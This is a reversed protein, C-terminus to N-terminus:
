AEDYKGAALLGRARLQHVQAPVGAFAGPAVFNTYTHLCRLMSQEYAEAAKGYDKRPAAAIGLRRVSAGSYFSNPDSVRLLLDTVRRAAVAHGREVLVRVLEYRGAFDGLLM